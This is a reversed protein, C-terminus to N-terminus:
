VKRKIKKFGEQYYAKVESVEEDTMKREHADHGEVTYAHEYTVKGDKIFFVHPTYLHKIGDDDLPVYDGFKEVFLEYNDIDINSKWKSNKRTNVYLVSAKNEKAVENLFPVVEICWPCKSFGFYVVFTEGKDIKEAVELMESEQYVHNKDEFGEYDSMDATKNTCGITFAIVVTLTIILIKRM